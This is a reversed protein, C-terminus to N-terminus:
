DSSSKRARLRQRQQKNKYLLEPSANITLLPELKDLEAFYRLVRIFSSLQMNHGNEIKQISLKSLGTEYALQVQSCNMALRKGRIRKALEAIIEADDLWATIKSQM